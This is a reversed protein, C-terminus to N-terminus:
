VSVCTKIQVMSESLLVAKGEKLVRQGGKREEEEGGEEM